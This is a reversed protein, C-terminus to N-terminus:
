RDFWRSLQRLSRQKFSRLALLQLVLFLGVLGYASWVYPAYGGMSVWHLLTTM